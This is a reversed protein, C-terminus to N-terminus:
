VSGLVEARHEFSMSNRIRKDERCVIWMDMSGFTMNCEFSTHNNEFRISNLFCNSCDAMMDTLMDATLQNNLSYNKIYYRYALFPRILKIALVCQLLGQHFYVIPLLACDGMEVLVYFPIELRVLEQVYSERM